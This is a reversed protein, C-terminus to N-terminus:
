VPLAESPEVIVINNDSIYKDRAAETIFRIVEIDNDAYTTCHEVKSWVGDHNLLAYNNIINKIM